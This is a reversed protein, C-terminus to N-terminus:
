ENEKRIYNPYITEVAYKEVQERLCCRIMFLMRDMDVLGNEEQIVVHLPYLHDFEIRIDYYSRIKEIRLEKFRFNKVIAKRILDSKNEM